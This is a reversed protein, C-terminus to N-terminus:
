DFTSPRSISSKKGDKIKNWLFQLTTAGATGFLLVIGALAGGHTNIWLLFLFPLAMAWLIKGNHMQRLLWFLVALFLATFIQPRAAFGFAIEVVALAGVAWAFARSNGTINQLGLRLAIFFTAFGTLVTLLWLGTGGLLRHAAGLAIEALVEHNIWLGHHTTWSYPETKPLTHSAIMEQGFLTHGWLDPDATNEAFNYFVLALVLARFFWNLLRSADKGTSESSMNPADTEETKM